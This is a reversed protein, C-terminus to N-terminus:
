RHSSSGTRPERRHLEGPHESARAEAPVAADDGTQRMNQSIGGRTLILHTVKASIGLRLPPCWFPCWRSTFSSNRPTGSSQQFARLDSGLHSPNLLKLAQNRGEGGVVRETSRCEEASSAWQETSMTKGAMTMARQHAALGDAGLIEAYAEPFDDFWGLRSPRRMRAWRLALAMPDPRARQCGLRYLRLLEGRLSDSWYESDIDEEALIESRELVSEVSEIADAPHGHNLIAGLLFLLWNLRYQIQDSQRHPFEKPNPV